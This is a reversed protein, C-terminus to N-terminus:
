STTPRVTIGLEVITLTADENLNCHYGEATELNLLGYIPPANPDSHNRADIERQSVFIHFEQGSESVAYFDTPGDYKEM